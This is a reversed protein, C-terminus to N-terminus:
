QNFCFKPYAGLRYAVFFPTGAAPTAIDHVGSPLTIEADFDDLTYDGYVVVQTFMFLERGQAGEDAPMILETAVVQYSGSGPDKELTDMIHSIHSQNLSILEAVFRKHQCSSVAIASVATMFSAPDALCLQVRVQQPIFVGKPLLQPVLNATVALQPEQELAKQMTEAIILHLPTHHQYTSADAKVTAIDYFELGFHSILRGVSALSEAHIDLLTIDLAGPDFRELLPMLLTAFPGCGAYLINLPPRDSRQQQKTISDNIAAYVGRIFVVTRQYDTICHAAARPGIAVGEALLQDGAQSNFGADPQIGSVRACLQSYEDLAAQLRLQSSSEDLITDAISRLTTQL